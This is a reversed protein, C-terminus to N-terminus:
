KTRTIQYACGDYHVTMSEGELLPNWGCGVSILNVLNPDCSGDKWNAIMKEIWWERLMLDNPGPGFM